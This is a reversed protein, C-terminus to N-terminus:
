NPRSATYIRNKCLELWDSSKNFSPGFNLVIPASGGDNNKKWSGYRELIAFAANMDRKMADNRGLMRAVVTWEAEDVIYARLDALIQKLHESRDIRSTIESATIIRGTGANKAKLDKIAKHVYGLNDELAKEIEEDSIEPAVASM